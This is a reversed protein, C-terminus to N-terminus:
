ADEALPPTFFTACIAGSQPVEQRITRGTALDSDGPETLQTLNLRLGAASTLDSTAGTDSSGGSIFPLDHSVLNTVVKSSNM